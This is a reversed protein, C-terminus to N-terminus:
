RKNLPLYPWEGAHRPLNWVVCLADAGMVNGSVKAAQVHGDLFTVNLGKNHRVDVTSAHPMCARWDSNWLYGSSEATNNIACAQIDTLIATESIRKMQNLNVIHNFQATGDFGKGDGSCHTHFGYNSRYRHYKDAPLKCGTPLKNDLKVYNDRRAPCQVVKPEIKAGQNLGKYGLYDFLQQSWNLWGNQPAPRSFPAYDNNDHIYHTMALGIQKQNNICSVAQAKARAQSLAPLLMSALIAIIAIVM